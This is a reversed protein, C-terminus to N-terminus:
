NLFDIPELISCLNEHCEDMRRLRNEKAVQLKQMTTYHTERLQDREHQIRQREQSVESQKGGGSCTFVLERTEQVAKEQSKLNAEMRVAVSQQREEKMKLDQGHREIVQKLDEAEYVNAQRENMLQSKSNDTEKLKNVEDSCGHFADPLREFVKKNEQVDLLKQHVELSQANKCKYDYESCRAGFETQKLKRLKVKNELEQSAVKANLIENLVFSKQAKIQEMQSKVTLKNEKVQEVNRQLEEREKIADRRKQALAEYGQKRDDIQNHFDNLHQIIHILASCIKQLRKPKPNLIDGVNFVDGDKFDSRVPSLVLQMGKLIHLISVPSDHIESLDFKEATAFDSQRFNDLDNAFCHKLSSFYIVEWATKQPDKFDMETVHCRINQRFFDVLCSIDLTEFSFQSMNCIVLTTTSKTKVPKVTSKNVTRSPANFKFIQIVLGSLVKKAPRNKLGSYLYHLFAIKTDYIIYNNANVIWFM